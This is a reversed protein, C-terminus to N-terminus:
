FFNRLSISATQLFVCREYSLRLFMWAFVAPTSLRPKHAVDLPTYL